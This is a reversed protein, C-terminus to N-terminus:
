LIEPTAAPVFRGVGQPGVFEGKDIMVHGRLITTVPMGTVQWGDWNSFDGGSHLNEGQKYTHSFGDDMVVIDADAGPRLVGKQGYIGFLRAPNASSLEVFRPVSLNRKGVGESWL